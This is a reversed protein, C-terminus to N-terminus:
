DRHSKPPLVQSSWVVMVIVWLYFIMNTIDKVHTDLSIKNLEHLLHSSAGLGTLTSIYVDYGAAQLIPDIFRWCWGGHGTGHVLVFTTQAVKGM